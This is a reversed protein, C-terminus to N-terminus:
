IGHCFHAVKKLHYMSILPYLHVYFYIYILPHLNIYVHCIITQINKRFIYVTSIRLLKGFNLLENGLIIQGYAESTSISTSVEPGGVEWAFKRKGESMFLFTDNKLFIYM